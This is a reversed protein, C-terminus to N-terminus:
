SSSSVYGPGFQRNPIELLLYWNLQDAKIFPLHKDGALAVSVSVCTKTRSEMTFPVNVAGKRSPM